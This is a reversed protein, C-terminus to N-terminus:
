QLWATRQSFAYTNLFVVAEGSFGNATIGPYPESAFSMAVATTPKNMLARLETFDPQGYLMATMADYLRPALIIARLWPDDYRMGPSATQVVVKVRVIPGAAPPRVSNKNPAATNGHRPAATRSPGAALTRISDEDVLEAPSGFDSLKDGQAQAAYALVMDLPVRDNDAERIPWPALAPAIDPNSLPARPTAQASAPPRRPEALAVAWQDKDANAPTLAANNANAAPVSVLAAQQPRAVPVPVLAARVSEAKTDASALSFSGTRSATSTSAAVSPTAEDEDDDAHFL